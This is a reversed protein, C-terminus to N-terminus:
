AILRLLGKGGRIRERRRELGLSKSFVSPNGRTLPLWIIEDKEEKITIVQWSCPTPFPKPQQHLEIMVGKRGRWAAGVPRCDLSVAAPCLFVSFLSSSAPLPVQKTRNGFKTPPKYLLAGENLCSFALIASEHWKGRMFVETWHRNRVGSNWKVLCCCDILLHLLSINM